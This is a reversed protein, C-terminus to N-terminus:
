ETPGLLATRFRSRLFPGDRPPLAPASVAADVKIAVFGPGPAHFISEIATDLESLATVTHVSDFGTARAVGALDVGRGSQALQMGTEAYRENDLVIAVLNAPAAIAVTALAGLGMMLEGDGLFVLVRRKPQALALGLGVMLAGGMAGWLYFNEPRDGAAAVDYTPNGLSTIVLADGRHALVRAVVDRRDLSEGVTSM